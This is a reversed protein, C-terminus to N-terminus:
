EGMSLTQQKLSVHFVFVHSAGATYKVDDADKMSLAARLEGLYGRLWKQEFAKVHFMETVIVRDPKSQWIEPVLKFGAELEEMSCSEHFRRALLTALVDIMIELKPKMMLATTLIKPLLMPDLSIFARRYYEIRASSDKICIAQPKTSAVRIEELQFARQLNLIISQLQHVPFDATFLPSQQLRCAMTSFTEQDYTWIEKTEYGKIDTIQIGAFAHCILAISARVGFPRYPPEPKQYTEFFGRTPSAHQGLIFLVYGIQSQLDEVSMSHMDAAQTLARRTSVLWWLLRDYQLVFSKEWDRECRYILSWLPRDDGPLMVSVFLYSLVLLLQYVTHLESDIM